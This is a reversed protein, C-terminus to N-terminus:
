IATRGYYYGRNVQGFQTRREEEGSIQQLRRQLKRLSIEDGMFNGIHVHLERAEPERIIEKVGKGVEFLGPGEILGGTDKLPFQFPRLEIGGGPLEPATYHGAVTPAPTEPLKTVSPELGAEKLMKKYESEIWEVHQLYPENLAELLEDQRGKIAEIEESTAIDAADILPDFYKDIDTEPIEALAATVKIELKEAEIYALEKELQRKSEEDLEPAELEQEIQEARAETQEKTLATIKDQLGLWERYLPALEEFKEPAIAKLEAWFQEDLQSMREFHAEKWLRRRENIGDVLVQNESKINSIMMDTATKIETQMTDALDRVEQKGKNLHNVLEIIGWIALSIGLTIAGWMAVASTKVAIMTLRLTRFVGILSRVANILAGGILLTPGLAAALLGITIIVKKWKDDLDGFWKVTKQVWDILKQIWPGLSKSIADGLLLMSNKLTNMMQQWQFGAGETMEDFAENLRGQSETIAEVAEGYDDYSSTLIPLIGKMAEDSAFLERIATVEGGTAERLKELVGTLGGFQRIAEPGSSVGWEEFLKQMAASPSILMRLTADVATAAQETTGLVKTLTGLMAGTEEISVGLGAANSAARPFTTALEEFTLLGTDVVGFFTDMAKEAGEVGQLQFINMAKTLAATTQTADAAGGTAGKMATTLIDIADAGRFGASVIQYFADSVETASKGTSNSIEIIRRKYNEAEDASAKLMVNVKRFSQDFDGAMKFAATGIGVIPLTLGLTLKRGVNSLKQLSSQCKNMGQEFEATKAGITVFLRSIENAM